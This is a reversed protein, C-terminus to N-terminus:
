EVCCWFVPDPTLPACGPPIKNKPAGLCQRPSGGNLAACEAALAPSEPSVPACRCAGAECAMYAAPGCSESCDLVTGCGDDAPACSGQPANECTAGNPECAGGTGGGAAGAGGGGGSGGAAGGGGESTSGADGTSGGAAGSGGEEGSGASGGEPAAGSGGSGGEPLPAAPAPACSRALLLVSLIEGVIFPRAGLKALMDLM